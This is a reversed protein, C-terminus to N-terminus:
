LDNAAAGLYLRLQMMSGGMVRVKVTPLQLRQICEWRHCGGFMFYGLGNKTQIELVEIPVQQGEDRISPLMTCVKDQDLISAIPRRIWAVPMNVVKGALSDRWDKPPNAADLTQAPDSHDM